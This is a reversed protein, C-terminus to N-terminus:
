AVPRDALGNMVTLAAMTATALTVAADETL